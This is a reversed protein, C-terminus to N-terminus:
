EEILDFFTIIQGITGTPINIDTKWRLIYKPTTTKKINKKALIKIIDNKTM